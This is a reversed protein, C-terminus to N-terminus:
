IKKKNESYFKYWDITLKISANIDLVPKWNIIKRAKSNNLNLLYNEKFNKEKRIQWKISPWIKQSKKLIEIVKYNKSMNPGFNFVEGHLNKNKKLQVALTLYGNIVDLIHQWPRTSNPNRIKVPIKKACSRMCDPILRDSSWDGGGIVNGARAVAIFNKNKRNNFFSKVYSNIAIDAASKSAGYPDEGGLFDNEKYGKKTEFNKYTKDSTIIISITEKNNKKLSELLNITGLTNTNFTNIPDLYSKKVIAQAALHFIFDPKFQKIEKNLLKFNRIDLKKSKISKLNLLQFHSPKTPTDISLGLVNAGLKNLWLILWSGKFGTHGTVIIKKNKFINFSKNEM